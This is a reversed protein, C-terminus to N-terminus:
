KSVAEVREHITRVATQIWLSAIRPIATAAAPWVVYGRERFLMFQRKTHRRSYSGSAVLRGNRVVNGGASRRGRVLQTSDRNAGFEVGAALVSVPTGDGVKGTAGSRLKIQTDSVAVKATDSLVREQLRTHANKAVAESWIPQVTKRIQKRTESAVDRPLGRMVTVLAQLERSVLVSIRGTYVM